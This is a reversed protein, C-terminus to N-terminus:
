RLINRDEIHAEAASADTRIQEFHDLAVPEPALM